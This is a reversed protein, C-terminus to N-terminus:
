FLVRTGKVQKQNPSTDSDQKTTNALPKATRKENTKRDAEEAAAVLRAKQALKIYHEQSDFPVAQETENKEVFYQMPTYTADSLLERRKATDRLSTKIYEIIQDRLKKNLVPWAIEIRKEMNRTMLDASSLYVKMDDIPGFGFIRSHELLRGIISVVRVNDTYGEVSPLICCIGRVLLTVPVGACSAESLKVIIDKDTISNTKFCVGCPKGERANEIQHDISELIMPKIQLPAVCLIDYNESISELGMNRFFETADRGISEDTTIFSLDTYLKATKENYNGNGLQTIHQLGDETQRTICCIKSHVKYNRFGYIVKAGAQEFRQSWEINNSEDFRARLEFLATVEKGNEAAAILTEALHSQSSLRYLTIKISIVHPDVSAEKLLQIFPDISEYPYSLMSEFQSVQETMSVNRSLTAPWQPTFPPYTM